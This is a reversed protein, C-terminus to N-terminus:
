SYIPGYTACARFDAGELGETGFSNWVAPRYVDTSVLLPHSGRGALWRGILAGIFGLAISALCGMGERGAIRAGISGSLAAILLLLLFSFM